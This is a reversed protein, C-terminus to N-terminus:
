YVRENSDGKIKEKYYEQVILHRFAQDPYILGYLRMFKDVYSKFDENKNYFESMTVLNPM